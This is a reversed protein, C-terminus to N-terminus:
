KDCPYQVPRASSLGRCQSHHAEVPDDHETPPVPPPGSGATSATARIRSWSAPAKGALLLSRNGPARRRLKPLERRVASVCGTPLPQGSFSNSDEGVRLSRSTCSRLSSSAHLGRIRPFWDGQTSIPVEFRITPKGCWATTPMRFWRGRLLQIPDERATYGWKSAVPAQPEDRLRLGPTLLTTLTVARHSPLIGDDAGTFRGPFRPRRVDHGLRVAECLRSDGM